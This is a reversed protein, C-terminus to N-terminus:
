EPNSELLIVPSGSFFVFLYLLCYSMFSSSFSGVTEKYLKEWLKGEEIVSAWVVSAEEASSLSKFDLDMFIKSTISEM